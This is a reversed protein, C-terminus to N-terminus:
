ESQLELGENSNLERKEEEPTSRSTMAMSSCSGKSEAATHTDIRLVLGIAERIEWLVSIEYYEIALEPLRVWVAVSSLNATSAKFNPEWHRISLYHGGIFWPGGKLVRVYDEKMLFRILFFGQGFNVCEM